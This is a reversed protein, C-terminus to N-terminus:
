NEDTLMRQLDYLLALADRPSLADADLSRLREAIAAHREADPDASAPGPAFLDPQMPDYAAQEFGALKTRAQALVARPVGALKAVEFRNTERQGRRLGTVQHEPRQM